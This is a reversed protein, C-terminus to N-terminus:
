KVTVFPTAGGPVMTTPLVGDWREAQILDVLQPNDKLADGKDRIAAAEAEGALKTAEAKAKAVALQADAQAKAQTVTIEATVKEKLANQQTKQVEVEALMRQEISAEYTDSFDINEIQVSEIIVPGQVAKQIATQVETNLRGREQISKAASFQGFVNKTVEFVKRDILRAVLNDAGGYNSYVDLVADAPIRYNVSVALVAPQQDASYTAMEPYSRSQSQIDIETVGTLFPAKFGFGPEALGVVAGGRTIVGREGQAVTYFSGGVVSLVGIVAVAPVIFKFM